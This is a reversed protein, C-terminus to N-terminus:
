ACKKTRNGTYSQARFYKRVDKLLTKNETQAARPKTAIEILASTKGVLAGNAAMAMQLGTSGGVRVIAAPLSFVQTM